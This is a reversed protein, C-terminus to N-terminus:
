REITNDLAGGFRTELTSAGVVERSLRKWPRMVRHTYFKRRIEGRKSLVMGGQGILGQLIDSDM